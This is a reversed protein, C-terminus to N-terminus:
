LTCKSQPKMSKPLIESSTNCKLKIFPFRIEFVLGFPVDFCFFQQLYKQKLFELRCVSLNSQLKLADMLTMIPCEQLEFRVAKKSYVRFVGLADGYAIAFRQGGYENLSDRAFYSMDAIWTM